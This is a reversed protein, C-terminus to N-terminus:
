LLVWFSSCCFSVSFSLFVSVLRFVCLVKFCSHPFGLSSVGLIRLLVMYALQAEAAVVEVEEQDSEIDASTVSKGPQVQVRKRRIKPREEQHRM